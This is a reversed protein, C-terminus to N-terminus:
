FACQSTRPQKSMKIVVLASLLTVCHPLKSQQLNTLKILFKELDCTSDHNNASEEQCDRKRIAKGLHQIKNKGISGLLKYLTSVNIFPDLHLYVPHRLIITNRTRPKTPSM